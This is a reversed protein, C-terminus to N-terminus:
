SSGLNDGLPGYISLASEGPAPLGLPTPLRAPGAPGQAGRGAPAWGPAGRRTPGTTPPHFPFGRGNEIDAAPSRERGPSRPAYPVLQHFSANSSGRPSGPTNAPPPPRSSRATGPGCDNKPPPPPAATCFVGTLAIGGANRSAERRAGELSFDAFWKEGRFAPPPIPPPPSPNFGWPLVAEM